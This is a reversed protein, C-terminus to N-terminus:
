AEVEQSLQELWDMALSWAEATQLEEAYLVLVVFHVAQQQSGSDTALASLEQEDLSHCDQGLHRELCERLLWSYREAEQRQDASLAALAKRLDYCADLLSGSSQAEKKRALERAHRKALHRPYWWSHWARAALFLCALLLTWLLASQELEQVDSPLFPEQM